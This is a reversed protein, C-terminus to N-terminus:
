SFVSSLRVQRAATRCCTSYPRKCLTGPPDGFGSVIQGVDVQVVLVACESHRAKTQFPTQGLVQHDRGVGGGQRQHYGRPLGALIELPQRGFAAFAIIAEVLSDIVRTGGAGPSDLAVMRDKMACWWPILRSAITFKSSSLGMGLRKM